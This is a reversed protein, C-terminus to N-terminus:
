DRSFAWVRATAYRPLIFSQLPTCNCRSLPKMCALRSFVFVCVYQVYLRVREKVHIFLYLGSSEGKRVGESEFFCVGSFSRTLEKSM